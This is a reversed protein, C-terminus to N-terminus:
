NDGYIVIFDEKGSTMLESDLDKVLPLIILKQKQSQYNGKKNLNLKQSEISM